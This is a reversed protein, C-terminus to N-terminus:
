VRVTVASEILPVVPTTSISASLSWPNAPKCSVTCVISLESPVTDMRPSAVPARQSFSETWVSISLVVPVTVIEPFSWADPFTRVTLYM